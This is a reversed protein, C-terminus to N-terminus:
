IQPRLPWISAQSARNSAQPTQPLPPRVCLHFGLKYPPVPAAPAIRVLPLLLPPPLIPAPRGAVRRAIRELTKEMADPHGVPVNFSPIRALGIAALAGRKSTCKLELPFIKQRPIYAKMNNLRPDLTESM